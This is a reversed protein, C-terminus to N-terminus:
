VTPTNALEGITKPPNPIINLKRLLDQTEFSLETHIPFNLEMMFRSFRVYNERYRAVEDDNLGKLYDDRSLKFFLEVFANVNVFGILNFKGEPIDIDYHRSRENGIFYPLIGIHLTDDDIHLSFIYGGKDALITKDSLAKVVRMLQRAKTPKGNFVIKTIGSNIM